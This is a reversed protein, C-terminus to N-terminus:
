NINVIYNFVNIVLNISNIKPLYKLINIFFFRNISATISLIQTNTSLFFFGTFEFFLFSICNSIFLDLIFNIINNIFLLLIIVLLGIMATATNLELLIFPTTWKTSSKFFSLTIILILMCPNFFVTIMTKMDMFCTIQRIFARTHTGM